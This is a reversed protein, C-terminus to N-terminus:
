KSKRERKPLPFQKNVRHDVYDGMRNRVFKDVKYRESAWEIALQLAEARAVRWDKRRSEAFVKCGYDWDWQNKETGINKGVRWVKWGNRWSDRGGQIHRTIIGM